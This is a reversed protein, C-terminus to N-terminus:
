RKFTGVSIDVSVPDENDVLGDGNEDWVSTAFFGCRIDIEQESVILFLSGQKTACKFEAKQVLEPANTRLQALVKQCQQDSNSCALPKVFTSDNAVLPLVGLWTGTRNGNGVPKDWCFFSVRQPQGQNQFVKLSLGKSDSCERKWEAIQEPFSDGLDALVEQCQRESCDGAVKRPQTKDAPTENACGLVLFSVVVSPIALGKLRM